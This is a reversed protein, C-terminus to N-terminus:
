SLVGADVAASLEDADVTGDANVDVQAFVEETLSPYAAQLEDMSYVGNGDTDEVTAQAFAASSAMLGILTAITVNKM